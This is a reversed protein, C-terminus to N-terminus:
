GDEEFLGDTLFRSSMRCRLPGPAAVGRIHATLELTPAWGLPFGALNFCVPAFADTALLLGFADIPERVPDTGAFRFWGAIEPVGTPNGTVFGADAPRVRTALYEGFRSDGVPPRTGVCEDYPPLDPPAGDVHSASGPGGPQQDGFTGLLTLLDDGAATRLSARLTAMRRGARVVEVAVTCPGPRGPALFHTTLSLPPRGAADAMARAAIAILYGGNAAGGIDWGGDIVADYLGDSRLIVATTREFAGV